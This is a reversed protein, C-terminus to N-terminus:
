CVNYVRQNMNEKFYLENLEMIQAQLGRYDLVAAFLAKL